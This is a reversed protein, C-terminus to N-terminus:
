KNGNKNIDELKTEYERKAKLRLLEIKLEEENLMTIDQKKFYEELLNNILKSKNQTNKITEANQDNLYVNIIRAMCLDYM